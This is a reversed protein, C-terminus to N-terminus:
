RRQWYGVRAYVDLMIDLEFIKLLKQVPFKDSKKVKLVGSYFFETVAKATSITHDSLDLLKYRYGKDTYEFHENGWWETFKPSIKFLCSHCAHFETNPPKGYVIIM